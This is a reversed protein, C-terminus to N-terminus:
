RENNPELLRLERYGGGERSFHQSYFPDFPLVDAYRQRMVENELM